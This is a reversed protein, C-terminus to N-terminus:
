KSYFLYIKIKKKIKSDNINKQNEKLALNSKLAEELGTTLKNNEALLGELKSELQRLNFIEKDREDLIKLLKENENYVGKLQM